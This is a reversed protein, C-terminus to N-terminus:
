SGNGNRAADLAASASGKTIPDVQGPKVIALVGAKNLMALQADSPGKDPDRLAVERGDKKFSTAFGADLLTVKSAAAM